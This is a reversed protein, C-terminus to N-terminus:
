ASLSFLFSVRFTLRHNQNSARFTRERRKTKKAICVRFLLLLSLRLIRKLVFLADMIM